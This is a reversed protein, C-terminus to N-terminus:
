LWSFRPAATSSELADPDRVFAELLHPVHDESVCKRNQKEKRLAMRLFDNLFAALITKRTDTSAFLKALGRPQHSHFRVYMIFKNCHECQYQPNRCVLEYVFRRLYCFDSFRREVQYDPQRDNSRRTSLYRSAKQPNNLNSPLRTNFHYLYVDLIYYTVGDRVRTHNIEIREITQLYALPITATSFREPEMTVPRLHPAKAAAPKEVLSRKRSLQTLPSPHVTKTDEHPM